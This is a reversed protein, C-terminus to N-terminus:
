NIFVSGPSYYAIFLDLIKLKILRDESCFSLGGKESWGELELELGGWGKLNFVSRM